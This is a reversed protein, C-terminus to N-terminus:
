TNGSGRTRDAEEHAQKVAADVKEPEASVPESKACGSLTLLSALIPVVPPKM